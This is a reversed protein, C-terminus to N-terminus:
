QIKEIWLFQNPFLKKLQEPNQKFIGFVSAGSGSMSAYIAGHQYMTNKTDEIEPFKPFISTEFDNKLLNKWDELPQQICESVPIEPLAPKINAYADATSVFCNPKVLALYFAETELSIPKLQDGIGEGLMPQNYIFFACDAGLKSAYSALNEKSLNLNFLQNLGLLMFAADSSGGGLGAGTPIVKKLKIHVSPLRFENKLLRYAKLVLNSEQDGEIKNGEIFLETKNSESIVLEDCLQIPFFITELDHYGDIRKRLVNLGLNIKANPFLKM